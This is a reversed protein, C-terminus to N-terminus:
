LLSFSFFASFRFCFVWSWLATLGLIEVAHPGVEFCSVYGDSDLDIMAYYKDFDKHEGKSYTGDDKQPRFRSRAEGRGIFFTVAIAAIVFVFLRM